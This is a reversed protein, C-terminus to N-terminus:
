SRTGPALADLDLLKRIAERKGASDPHEYLARVVRRVAREMSGAKPKPGRPKYELDRLAVSLRVRFLSFAPGSYSKMIFQVEDLPDRRNFTM